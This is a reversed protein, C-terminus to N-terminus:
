LAGHRGSVSYTLKEIPWPPAVLLVHLIKVKGSELQVKSCPSVTVVDQVHEHHSLISCIENGEEGCMDVCKAHENNIRAPGEGLYM